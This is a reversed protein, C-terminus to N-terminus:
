RQFFWQTKEHETPKSLAVVRYHKENMYRTVRRITGGKGAADRGEFLIIMRRNNNELCKQMRILEAQYPKLAEERYYRKIAKKQYKNLCPEGKKLRKYERILDKLKIEEKQFIITEPNDAKTRSTKKGTLKLAALKKVCKKDKIEAAKVPAAGKKSRKKKKQAQKRTTATAKKVASKKRSAATKAKGAKPKAASKAPAAPTIKTGEIPKDASVGTGQKTQAM